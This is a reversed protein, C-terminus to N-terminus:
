SSRCDDGQTSRQEAAFIVEEPRSSLRHDREHKEKTKKYDTSKIQMAKSLTYGGSAPRGVTGPPKAIKDGDDGEGDENDPADSADDSEDESSEVGRLAPSVSRRDRQSARRPSASRSKLRFRVSRLPVPGKTKRSRSSRFPGIEEHVLPSRFHDVALTLETQSVTLPLPPPLVSSQFFPLIAMTASLPFGELPSRTGACRAFPHRKPLDLRRM